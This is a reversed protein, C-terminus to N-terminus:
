SRDTARVPYAEVESSGVLDAILARTGAIYTCDLEVDGGLAWARDDPWWRDPRAPLPEASLVADLPGRLLLYRRTPLVFRPVQDAIQDAIGEHGDWLGFWCTDATGTHRALISILPPVVEPPPGGFAPRQTWLQARGADVVGDVTAIEEFSVAPHMAIGTSEAIRAWTRQEWVGDPGSYWAPHLVRAYGSYGPVCWAAVCGGDSVGAHEFELWRAAAVDDCRRMKGYREM